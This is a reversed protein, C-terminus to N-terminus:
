MLLVKLQEDTITETDKIDESKKSNDIAKNLQEIQSNLEKKKKQISM